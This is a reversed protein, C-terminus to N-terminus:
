MAAPNIGPITASRRASRLSSISRRSAKGAVGPIAMASVDTREQL